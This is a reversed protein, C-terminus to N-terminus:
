FFGQYNYKLKVKFINFILGRYAGVMGLKKLILQYYSWLSKHNSQILQVAQARVKISDFPTALIAQVLGGSVGALFYPIVKNEKFKDRYIPLTRDYTFFLSAGIITNAMLPPLIFQIIFNYKFYFDIYVGKIKIANRIMGITTYNMINIKNASKSEGDKLLARAIELYDVRM